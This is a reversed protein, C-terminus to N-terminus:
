GRFGNEPTPAPATTGYIWAQFFPGLDVQTQSQVQTMWEELSRSGREQGWDRAMSFFTEDGVVTRLAQLTMPGRQYVADFLHQPSPDIMTIRWFDPRDKLREYSAAFSEAASPGGTREAYGWSGWTAWAENTFIDDWQRVTVNDGFWMHALEHSLLTDTGRGDLLSRADYVPRTQTELGAYPLKHVPVVGGLESFPYPGFMSELTRVIAPSRRLATLARRQNEESLQQSVAYVYPRGDAVGQDLVYQGISLFSLYTAMPEASVWHWTDFDAEDGTDPSALAGASIVEVGEPVRVSVDMLAPDSPHDNAPFWWASSEPEGAVTWEPGTAHWPSGTRGKLQGPAGSYTVVTEFRAGAAIPQAPTVRVDQFGRKQFSAPVGDVTVQETGLALDVYFSDLAETARATIRTSGSLRQGAPDWSLSVTYTLADYGSSGYTPFYPDGVGPRGQGPAAAAGDGSRGRLWVVGLPAALVLLLALPLLVALAVTLRTPRPPPVRAPPFPAPSM